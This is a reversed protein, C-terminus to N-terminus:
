AADAEIVGLLGSVEVVEGVPAALRLLRGSVPAPLVVTSKEAELEVLDEGETVPDGEAAFWGVVEADNMGMGFSPLRVEHEM